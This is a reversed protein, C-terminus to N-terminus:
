SFFFLNRVLVNPPFGAWCGGVCLLKSGAAAGITNQIRTRMPKLLAPILHHESFCAPNCAVDKDLHSASDPAKEARHHSIRALAKLLASFSRDVSTGLSLLLSLGQAEWSLFTSFMALLQAKMEDTHDKPSSNTSGVYGNDVCIFDM